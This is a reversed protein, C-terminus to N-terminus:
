SVTEGATMSGYSQGGSGYNWGRARDVAKASTGGKETPDPRPVAKGDDDQTAVFHSLAKRWTSPRVTAGARSAAKLGLLAYQTNSNDFAHSSSGYTDAYGWGGNGGQWDQLRDAMEQMWARVGEEREFLEDTM